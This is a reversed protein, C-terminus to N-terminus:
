PFFPLRDSVVKVYNVAGYYTNGNVTPLVSNVVGNWSTATAIASDNVLILYDGVNLATTGTVGAVATGAVSVLFADYAILPDSPRVSLDNANPLRNLSLDISGRTCYLQTLADPSVKAGEVGVGPVGEQSTIVFTRNNATM